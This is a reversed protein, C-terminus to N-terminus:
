DETSDSPLSELLPVLRPLQGRDPGDPVSEKRNVPEVFATMSGNSDVGHLQFWTHTVRLFHLWDAVARMSDTRTLLLDEASQSSGFAYCIALASFAFIANCNGKDVNCLVSRYKWTCNAPVAFRRHLTARSQGVQSALSRIGLSRINGADPLPAANCLQPVVASWM